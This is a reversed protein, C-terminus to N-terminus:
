PKKPSDAAPSDAAPPKPTTDSLKKSTIMAPLEKGEPVFKISISNVCHRSDKKTM